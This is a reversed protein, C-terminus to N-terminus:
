ESSDILNAFTNYLFHKKPIKDFIEKYGVLNPIFFPKELLDRLKRLIEDNSLDCFFLLESFLSLNTKFFIDMHTTTITEVDALRIYGLLCYISERIVNLRMSVTQNEANSKNSQLIESLLKYNFYSKFKAVFSIFLSLDSDDDTLTNFFIFVLSPVFYLMDDPLKENLLLHSFLDVFISHYEDSRNILEQLFKTLIADGTEMNRTVVTLFCVLLSSNGAFVDMLTVANASRKRKSLKLMKGLKAFFVESVVNRPAKALLSLLAQLVHLEGTLFTTLKRSLCEYMLEIEIDGIPLRLLSESFEIAVSLDPISDIILEAVHDIADDQKITIFANLFDPLLVLFISDSPWQPISSLLITHTQEFREPFFSLFLCLLGNGLNLLEKNDGSALRLPANHVARFVTDWNATIIVEPYTKVMGILCKLVTIVFGFHFEDECNTPCNEYLYNGLAEIVSSGNSDTASLAAEKTPDSGIFLRLAAVRHTIPQTFLLKHISQLVISVVSLPAEVNARAVSLIHFIAHLLAERQDSTIGIDIVVPLVRLCCDAFCNKKLETDKTLGARMLLVLSRGIQHKLERSIAAGKSHLVKILAVTIKRVQYSNDLLGNLLKLISRARSLFISHNEILSCCGKFADLRVKDNYHTLKTNLQEFTQGKSTTPESNENVISQETIKINRISTDIETENSGKTRQKKRAKQAKRARQKHGM